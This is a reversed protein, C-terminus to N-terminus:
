PRGEPEVVRGPVGMVTTNSPVDATVLAGAGVMAAAGVRRGPMVTAGAGIFAGDEITAGGGVVAGPGIFVHDGISVDHSIIVGLRAALYNGIRAGSGVSSAHQLVCGHGCQVHDLEVHPHILSPMPRGLSELLLAVSRAAALSGTVNSFFQAGADALQQLDARTGLIPFGLVHTGQAEARDDIFGLLRWQMRTRNIAGVLKILDPYKSGFIVLDQM